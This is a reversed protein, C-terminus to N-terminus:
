RLRIKESFDESEEYRNALHTVRAERRTKSFSSHTDLLGLSYALKDAYGPLLVGIDFPVRGPALHNVHQVINTTCNNTFTDYFEPEQALKNVRGMVDLLLARTQDPTAKSRYLYVDDKRYKTRLPIVDREDAVVYILEFQRMAGKVPSYKEGQELRAEISVALHGQDGFGFSLMTHAMSPSDKFPIVLFDVTQALNLDFTKDYRRVVYDDPGLYKTNRINYVTLQSGRLEAHSLVALNPLWNRSNSPAGIRAMEAPSLVDSLAAPHHLSKCGAAFLSLVAVALLPARRPLESTRADQRM